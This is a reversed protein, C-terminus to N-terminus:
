IIQMMGKRQYLKAKNPSRVAFTQQWRMESSRRILLDPNLRIRADANAIAFAPDITTTAIVNIVITLTMSSVFHYVTGISRLPTLL